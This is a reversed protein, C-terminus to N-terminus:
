DRKEGRGRSEQYSAIINKIEKKSLEIAEDVCNNLVEIMEGRLEAEDKRTLSKKKSIQDIIVDVGAKFSTLISSNNVHLMSKVVETPMTEGRLKQERLESLRLSAEKNQIDIKKAQHELDIFSSNEGKHIVGNKKALRFEKFEVNVPDNIDVKQGVLNFIQLSLILLM